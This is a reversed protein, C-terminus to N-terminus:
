VPGCVDRILLVTWPCGVLEALSSAGAREMVAPTDASEVQVKARGGNPYRLEAVLAAEGDHTPTLQIAAIRAVPSADMESM